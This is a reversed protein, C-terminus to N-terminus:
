NLDQTPNKGMRKPVHRQPTCSVSATCFSIHPNPTLLSLLSPPFEIDFYQSLLPNTYYPKIDCAHLIKSGTTFHNTTYAIYIHVKFNQPMSFKYLQTQRQSPINKHTHHIKQTPPQPKSFTPNHHTTYPPPSPYKQILKM